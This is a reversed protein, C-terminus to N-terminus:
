NKNLLQTIKYMAGSSDSGLFLEDTHTELWWGDQRSYWVHSTNDYKQAAKQLQVRNYRKNNRM